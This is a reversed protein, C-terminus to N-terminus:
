VQAASYVADHVSAGAGDLTWGNGRAITTMAVTGFGIVFVRTRNKKSVDDVPSEFVAPEYEGNCGNSAHRDNNNDADDVTVQSLTRWRRSLFGKSHLIHCASNQHGDPRQRQFFNWCHPLCLKVDRVAIIVNSFSTMLPWPHTSSTPKTNREPQQNKTISSRLFRSQMEACIRIKTRWLLKAVVEGRDTRKSRDTM